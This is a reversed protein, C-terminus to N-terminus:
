RDPRVVSCNVIADMGEAARLVDDPSAIDVRQFEHPTEIPLIDTVRLTHENELARAVYPGLRAAGGLILINM